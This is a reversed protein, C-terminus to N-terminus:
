IEVKKIQGCNDTYQHEIEHLLHISPDQLLIDGTKFTIPTSFPGHGCSNIAKLKFLYTNSDLLDCIQYNLQMTEAVM